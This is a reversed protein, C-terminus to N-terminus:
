ASIIQVLLKTSGTINAEAVRSTNLLLKDTPNNPSIQYNTGLITIAKGITFNPTVYTGADVYIIDGTQAVSVAFDLTALPSSPTGDNANNGVASTFVDGPLSNDNVYLLHPYVGNCSAAVPQFGTTILDDDTGNTLWPTFNVTGSTVKSIVYSPLIGDYWNCNANVTQSTTGNNISLVDNAFSNNNINAMAGSTLLGFGVSANFGAATNASPDYFAVSNNFGNIKNNAVLFGSGGLFSAYGTGGDSQIYIGCSQPPFALSHVKQNTATFNLENGIITTNIHQGNLQIGCNTSSISPTYDGSINIKNRLIETPGYGGTNGFELTMMSHVTSTSLSVDHNIVNERISLGIVGGITATTSIRRVAIVNSNRTNSITNSLIQINVANNASYNMSIANNCDRIDNNVIISNQLTALNLCTNLEKMRNDTLTLFDIFDINNAGGVNAFGTNRRPFLPNGLFTNDSVQITRLRNITLFGGFGDDIKLFRNESFIYNVSGYPLTASGNNLTIFNSNGQSEFINKTLTINSFTGTSNLFGSGTPSFTIGTIIIDSSQLTTTGGTIRTETNRAPNLQWKDAPNNPSILYNTGRITIAKGITMNPTVYTGADVYIIDGPQAIFLAYSLSALPSAASGTNADNGVATTFVDNALSNDNVYLSGTPVVNNTGEWKWLDGLNQNSSASTNNAYAGRGGFIYGNGGVVAATSNTRQPPLNNNNAIGILGYNGPIGGINGKGAIYRWNNTAPNYEWLDNYETGFPTGSFLYFKNNLTWSVADYRAAPNNLPNEIGYTGAVGGNGTTPGKIWTWYNTSLDFTWLDNLNSIGGSSRYGRGGFLYIKNNIAQIEGTERGGPYNSLAPVNLSGYSGLNDVTDNGGLWTWNNTTPDFEWIDNLQGLTTGSNYGQGGFLYLKNNYSCASAPGIGRAGPVNSSSAVGKTGYNGSQNTTNTGKIWTWNNTLIDFEWLDNYITSFVNGGFLYIKNGVSWLIPNTRAPPENTPAAVGITGYNGASEYVNSGKLWKWNNTAPDFEWFENTIGVNPYTTFGNGGFLYYKGNAGISGATLRGGPKNTESAVNQTGYECYYQKGSPGKLWKWNYTAPDFSWLDSQYLNGAISNYGRGGLLYLSGNIYNMVTQERSGPLSSVSAIGVYGYVGTNNISTQGKLWRWQNISPDYEWLDNLQGGGPSQSNGFGGFVYLTGNGIAGTFARRASPTNSPSYTQPTGYIGLADTSNIGTLWRWNNTNMDFEWLDNLQGYGGAVGIGFGGFMYFKNNIIGGYGYYRGGPNNAVDALGKTGYVGNVNTTNPGKIWRWLNTLPDFEWIDNLAEDGSVGSKGGGFLYLKGNYVWPYMTERSGPNNSPNAVGITGYTPAVNVSSVGNLWRWQNISPDYEWLDNLRGGAYGGFLYFKNNLVWSASSKRSGPTNAAAFIGITGYVAAGGTGKLSRWNNTTPDYEWLDNLYGVSVSNGAGEGGFLYLKNNYQWTVTNSRLGPNNSVSAVGQTGYSGMSFDTTNGKLFTFQNFQAKLMSPNTLFAIGIFLFATIKRMAILKLTFYHRSYKVSNLIIIFKIGFVLFVRSIVNM